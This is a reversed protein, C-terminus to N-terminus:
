GKGLKSLAATIEADIVEKQKAHQETRQHVSLHTAMRWTEDLFYDRQRRLIENELKLANVAADHDKLFIMKGHVFDEHQWIGDIEFHYGEYPEHAVTYVKM